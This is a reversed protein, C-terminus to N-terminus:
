LGGFTDICVVFSKTKNRFIYHFNWCNLQSLEFFSILFFDLIKASKNDCVTAFEDCLEIFKLYNIQSKTNLINPKSKATSFQTIFSSQHPQSECSFQVGNTLNLELFFNDDFAQNLYIFIYVIIVLFLAFVSLIYEFHM